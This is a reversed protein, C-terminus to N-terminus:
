SKPLSGTLCNVEAEKKQEKYLLHAYNYIILDPGVDHHLVIMILIFNHVGALSMIPSLWFLHQVEFIFLRKM